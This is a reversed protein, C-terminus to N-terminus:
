HREVKGFGPGPPPRRKRPPAPRGPSRPRPPTPFPQTQNVIGDLPWVDEVLVSRYNVGAQELRGWVLLSASRIKRKHQEFVDPTIAVPLRGTEDELVIFTMGRATPPRQLTVVVGAVFVMPGAAILRLSAVTQVAHQQLFERHLEVPHERPSMEMTAFDWSVLQGRDLEDLGPRLREDLLTDFLLPQEANSPAQVRRLLGLEWLSDRRKISDKPEDFAGARALADWVDLPLEVNRRLEELSHSRARQAVFAAAMEESMGKVQTLPMRIAGGEVTYRPQSKWADLRLIRVGLHKVEELVTSMPYFGPQHQLVAAMFAAPHHAKLWATQYVIQAFAAAHSRCFGYGVFAAVQAFVEEALERRVGHTRMAGNVFEIQMNQMDGPDRWKSMLSRFKDAAELSMGAFQHSVELVQEQYLIVGYTDRLISELSPHLYRVPERGARRDVYPNVMGGQLPGPRFLAVEAVLDDFTQPQTRSLLNWQGPSEIQFVSMTAGQRILEFTPGDDLPIADLDLREGTDNEHLTLAESVVALSRLGLVDFKILGLAEVDDKDFQVQRVGNASIQVPSHLALPTRSLIMGGNHLSLHRPCGKLGAVLTFLVELLPTPGTIAEFEARREPLDTMSEYSSAIKCVQGITDLDWGLVKMMERLAGKLRYTNVNATMATHEAGFREEMWDIVELRRESDFDVDIDPMGKRGRHLFREFLLKHALPDVTTIGLCYAIISNAASGRGACRIGRSRAYDTVERVVLFFECLDLGAVVDLEHALQNRAATESSWGGYRENLGVECLERLYTAADTGPPLLATPPTVEGPLLDMNCEDAIRETNAFAEDYPILRRMYEEPKLYASDNVPREAHRDGVTIGLRVCQLADYRPFHEPVAYCAANTAVLPLGLERALEVTRELQASDGPQLRHVLEVYLSHPFREALWRLWQAAKDRQRQRLLFALKGEPGATLCILRDVRASELQEPQLAPALRHNAHAMSLLDCLQAYGQQDRALVVLPFGQWTTLAAPDALMVLAGFIAKVGLERCASAFRVCGYTGHLDTLALARQGLQRAREVMQQPPSGGQLFSFWSRAHLHVM